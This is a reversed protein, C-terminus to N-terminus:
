PGVGVLQSGTRTLTVDKLPGSRVVPWELGLIGYRIADRRRGDPM